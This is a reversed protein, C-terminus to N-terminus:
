AQRHPMMARIRHRPNRAHAARNPGNNQTDTKVAPGTASLAALTVQGPQIRGVKAAVPPTKSRTAVGSM